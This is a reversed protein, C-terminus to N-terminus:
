YRSFFGVAAKPHSVKGEGDRFTLRGQEVRLSIPKETMLGPLAVDPFREGAELRREEDAKATVERGALLSEIAERFVKEDGEKFGVQVYRVVGKGDAIVTADGRSFGKALESGQGLLLPYSLGLKRALAGVAAGDGRHAVGAVLVGKPALDRSLAELAAMETRCANCDPQFFHLLLAQHRGEGGTWSVAEGSSAKLSFPPLRREESEPAGAALSVALLLATGIRKIGEM